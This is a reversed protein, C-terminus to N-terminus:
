LKLAQIVRKRGRAASAFEISPSVARELWTLVKDATHKRVPTRARHIPADSKWPAPLGQRILETAVKGLVDQETPLREKLRTHEFESAHRKLEVEFRWTGPPYEGDSEFHKNYVRTYYAATREGLYFTEGGRSKLIITAEPANKPREPDLKIRRWFDSVPNFNPLNSIGTVCYDIRSFHDSLDALTRAAIAAQEQSAIAISGERGWGVRWNGSQFGSYGQFHWSELKGGANTEADLQSHAFDFLNAAQGTKKGTATIWDCRAEIVDLDSTSDNSPVNGREAGTAFGGFSAV